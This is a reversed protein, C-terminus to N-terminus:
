LSLGLRALDPPAAASFGPRNAASVDDTIAIWAHDILEKRRRDRLSDGRLRSKDHGCRYARRVAEFDLM